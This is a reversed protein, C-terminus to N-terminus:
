PYHDETAIAIDALHGIDGAGADPDSWGIACWNPMEFREAIGENSNLKRPEFNAHVHNVDLMSVPNRATMARRNPMRTMRVWWPPSKRRSQHSRKARFNIQNPLCILAARVM